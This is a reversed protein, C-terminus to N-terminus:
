RGDNLFDMVSERVLSSITRHEKEARGWLTRYHEPDLTFTIQIWTNAPAPVGALSEKKEIPKIM